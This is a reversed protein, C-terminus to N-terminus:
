FLVKNTVPYLLTTVTAPLCIWPWGCRYLRSSLFKKIMCPKEFIFYKHFNPIYIYCKRSVIDVVIHKQSSRAIYFRPGRAEFPSYKHWRKSWKPGFSEGGWWVLGLKISNKRQWWWVLLKLLFWWGVKSRYVSFQWLSFQSNELIDSYFRLLFIWVRNVNKALVWIAANSYMSLYGYIESQIFFMLILSLRYM